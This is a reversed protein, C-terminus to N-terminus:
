VILGVGVSRPTASGFPTISIPLSDEPLKSRLETNLEHIARSWLRLAEDTEGANEARISLMAFKLASLNDIQVLDEDIEVPTFRMRVLATVSTLGNCSGRRCGTITSHLFSPSRVSPAYVAMDELVDNTADYAYLRVPGMTADKLVRTVQRFQFPTGVYPSALTLVIGPLWTDDDRKTFVEQGNADIGFLTITKGLDAQYAAFARIYRENGCTLQAQVVVEGDHQVVVNGCRTQACRYDAGNMALFSWWYDSVPTQRGCVNVALVTDVERPWTVGKCRVCVSLKAVTNWWGGRTMLRQVSENLLALFTPKDTCVGVTENIRTAKVEGLTLMRGKKVHALSQEYDDL